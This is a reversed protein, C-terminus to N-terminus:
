RHGQADGSEKLRSPQIMPAHDLPVGVDGRGTTPVVCFPPAGPRRGTGRLRTTSPTPRLQGIKDEITKTGSGGRDPDPAAEEGRSDERKLRHPAPRERANRRRSRCLRCAPLAARLRARRHRSAPVRPGEGDTEAAKAGKVVLNNEKSEIAIDGDAFGAVAISIRYADAGLKEINYPPYTKRRRASSRMSATSCATSASPRVISPPFIM